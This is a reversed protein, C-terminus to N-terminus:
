SGYVPSDDLDAEMVEIEWKCRSSTLVIAVVGGEGNEGFGGGEESCIAADLGCQGCQVESLHCTGVLLSLMCM